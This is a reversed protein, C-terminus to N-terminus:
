TPLRPLSGCFRVGSPSVSRSDVGAGGPHFMVLPEGSGLEDYWLDEKYAAASPKM